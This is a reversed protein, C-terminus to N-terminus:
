RCFMSCCCCRSTKKPFNKKIIGLGKLVSESLYLGKVKSSIYVMQRSVMDNRELRVLVAGKVGLEANTIGIIRHKTPIMFEQPCGISKLFDEGATCTQCGTDALGEVHVADYSGKRTGKWRVGLVKHADHMVSVKVNLMPSPDPLVPQFKGNSWQLHPQKKNKVDAKAAMVFAWDLGSIEKRLIHQKQLQKRRRWRKRRAQRRGKKDDLGLMSDVVATSCLTRSDCPCSEGASVLYSSAELNADKADESGVQKEM